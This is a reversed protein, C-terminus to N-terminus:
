IQNHNLSRKCILGKNILFKSPSIYMDIKDYINLIKHHLYMEVTNILSKVISNKTCKNLFCHYYKGNKCRECP